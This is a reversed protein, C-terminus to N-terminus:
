KIVFWINGVKHHPLYGHDNCWLNLKASMVFDLHKRTYYDKLEIM